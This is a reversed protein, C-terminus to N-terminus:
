CVSACLGWSFRISNRYRSAEREVDIPADQALARGEDSGAESLRSRPAAKVYM